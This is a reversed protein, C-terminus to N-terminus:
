ALDGFSVTQISSDFDAGSQDFSRLTISSTTPATVTVSRDVGNQAVSPTPYRTNSFGATFSLTYNGSTVANDISSTINLSYNLAGNGSIHAYAKAASQKHLNIPGNGSTDSITNARIDSL